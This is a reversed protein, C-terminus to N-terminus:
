PQHPYYSLANLPAQDNNICLLFHRRTLNSRQMDENRKHKQREIRASIGISM